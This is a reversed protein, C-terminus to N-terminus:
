LVQWDKVEERKFSRNYVIDVHKVDKSGMRVIGWVLFFFSLELENFEYITRSPESKDLEEDRLAGQDSNQENSNPVQSM